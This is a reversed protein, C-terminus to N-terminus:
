NKLNKKIRLGSNQFITGIKFDVENKELLKFRVIHKNTLM